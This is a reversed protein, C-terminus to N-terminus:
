RGGQAQGQAANPQPLMFAAGVRFGPYRVDSMLTYRGEGYLRINPIPQFELGIMGAVAGSTSDLLDEVFTNEFAPGNGNLVHLGAGAGIYTFARFPITWVLQADVSLSVDRWSISGLDDADIVVGPIANLRNALRELEGREFHSSWYSISPAIRVGPGLYGLDVRLSYTSTSQVKTPWIYGYDFGIGRFTLNAYDYDAINQASAAGATAALWLLLVSLSRSAHHTIRSADRTVRSAAAFRSIL